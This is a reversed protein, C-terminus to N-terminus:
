VRKDDSKIRYSMLMIQQSGIRERKSRFMLVSSSLDKNITPSNMGLSEWGVMRSSDMRM